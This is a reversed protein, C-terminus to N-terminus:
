SGNHNNFTTSSNKQIHREFQEVMWRCWAVYGREYDIGRQLTAYDSFQPMNVTIVGYKEELENVMQEYQVLQAAHQEEYSRYLKIAQEPEALWISFTKLLMENRESALAAPESVWRQLAARGAATISYMKKDPRDSQEVLEFTVLGENQLRALEPYIQSHRAHWFFGIPRRMSRALDYGSRTRRALLSLLAYGLTTISM